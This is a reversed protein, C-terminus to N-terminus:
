EVTETRSEEPLSTATASEKLTEVESEAQTESVSEGVLAAAEASAVSVESGAESEADPDPDTTLEALRNLAKERRYSVMVSLVQEETEPLKQGMQAYANFLAEVEEPQVAIEERQAIEDLLLRRKVRKEADPRVEETYEARTKGIMKLYQEATFHQQQLVHGARHLTEEVEEEILLPHIVFHSKEIV